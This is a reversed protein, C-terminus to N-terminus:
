FANLVPAEEVTVTTNPYNGSADPYAAATTANSIATIRITYNGFETNDYSTGTDLSYTTASFSPSIIVAGATGTPDVIQYSFGTVTIPAGSGDVFNITALLDGGTTNNTTKPCVASASLNANLPLTTVIQFSRSVSPGKCSGTSSTAYVYVNGTSGATGTFKVTTTATTPTAITAALIADASWNYGTASVTVPTSASVSTTFTLTAGQQVSTQANIFNISFCILTLFM